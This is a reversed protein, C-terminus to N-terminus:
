GRHRQHWTISRLTPSHCGAEAALWAQEQEAAEGPVEIRWRRITQDWKYGRAKLRDKAEFPAGAAVVRMTPRQATLIMESSATRGSPLTAALLAVLAAVDADARHRKNFFGAVQGLLAGLQRGEYGHARWDIDSLSCCWPMGAIAPYRREIWAADFRANHAITLDAESLLEVAAQDDIREGALIADSLGTLRAIGAPLPHGPDQLWDHLSGIAVINGRADFKVPCMALEIISGTTPDLSTTETDLVIATRVRGEPEPLPLLDLSPLSRQIRYDPHADLLAAARETDASLWDHM